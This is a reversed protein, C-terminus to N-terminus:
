HYYWFMSCPCLHCPSVHLMLERHTSTRLSDMERRFERERMEFPREEALYSGQVRGVTDAFVQPLPLLLISTLLPLPPHLHPSPSPSPVYGDLCTWLPPGDDWCCPPQWSTAPSVSWMVSASTPLQVPGASFLELRGGRDGM